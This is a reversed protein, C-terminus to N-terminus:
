LAMSIKRSFKYESHALFISVFFSIITLATLSPIGNCVTLPFIHLPVYYIANMKPNGGQIVLRSCFRWIPLPAMIIGILHRLPFWINQSTWISSAALRAHRSLNLENFAFVNLSFPNSAKTGFSPNTRLLEAYPVPSGSIGRFLVVYISVVILVTM